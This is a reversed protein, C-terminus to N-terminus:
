TVLRSLVSNTQNACKTECLTQVQLLGVENAERLIQEQSDAEVRFGLGEVVPPNVQTLPMVTALKQVYEETPKVLQKAWQMMEVPLQKEQPVGLPKERHCTLRILGCV